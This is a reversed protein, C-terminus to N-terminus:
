MLTSGDTDSFSASPRNRETERGDLCTRIELKNRSSGKISNEGSQVLEMRHYDIHVLWTLLQGPVPTGPVEQLLALSTANRQSSGYRPRKSQCIQHAKLSVTDTGM